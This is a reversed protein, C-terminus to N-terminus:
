LISPSKGPLRQFHQLLTPMSFHTIMGAIFIVM